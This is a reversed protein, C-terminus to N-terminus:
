DRAKSSASVNWKLVHALTAPVRSSCSRKAATGQFADARAAYAAWLRTPTRAGGEPAVHAPKLLSHLAAAVGAPAVLDLHVM